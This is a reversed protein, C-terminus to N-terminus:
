PRDGTSVDAPFRGNALTVNLARLEKPPPTEAPLGLPVITVPRVDEPLQLLQCIEAALRPEDARYASLYVSGLGRSWAALLLFATALVGNEIERNCSRNTDVCVIVIVPATCLFDATFARKEPPCYANKIRALERKTDTRRILVFQWPQGNMSSPAHRALDLLERLVADPVNDPQYRRISRRSRIIRDVAVAEDTGKTVKAM